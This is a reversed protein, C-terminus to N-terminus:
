TKSGPDPLVEASDSLLYHGKPAGPLTGRLMYTRLKTPPAPDLSHNAIPTGDVLIEWTIGQLAVAPPNFGVSSLTNGDQSTPKPFPVPTLTGVSGNQIKFTFAVAQGAGQGYVIWDGTQYKAPVVAKFQWIYSDLDGLYSVRLPVEFDSAGVPYATLTASRFAFSSSPMQWAMKVVSPAPAQAFLAFM